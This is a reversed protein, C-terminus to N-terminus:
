LRLIPTKKRIMKDQQWELVSQLIAIWIEFYSIYHIVRCQTCYIKTVNPGTIRSNISNIGRACTFYFLIFYISWFSAFTAFTQLFKQLSKGIEASYDAIM